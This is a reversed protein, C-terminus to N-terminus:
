VIQGGGAGVLGVEHQGRRPHSPLAIRVRLPETMGAGGHDVWEREGVSGALDQEM